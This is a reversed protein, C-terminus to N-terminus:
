AFAKLSRLIIVVGKSLNYIRKKVINNDDPCTYLFKGDIKLSRYGKCQNKQKVDKPDKVREYVVKNM